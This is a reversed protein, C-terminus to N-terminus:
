TRVRTVNQHAAIFYMFVRDYKMLKLTEMFEVLRLSIDDNVYLMPQVCLALRLKQQGLSFATRLIVRADSSM